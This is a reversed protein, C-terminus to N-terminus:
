TYDYVCPAIHSIKYEFRWMHVYDKEDYDMRMLKMKDGKGHGKWEIGEQDWNM